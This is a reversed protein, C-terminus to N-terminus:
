VGLMQLSFVAPSIITSNIDRSSLFNRYNCTFFFKPFQLVAYVSLLSFTYYTYIITTKYSCYDLDHALQWSCTPRNNQNPGIHSDNILVIKHLSGISKDRTRHCIKSQIHLSHPSPSSHALASMWHSCGDTQSNNDKPSSDTLM